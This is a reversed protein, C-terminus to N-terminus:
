EAHVPSSSVFQRPRFAMRSGKEGRKKQAVYRTRVGAIMGLVAALLYQSPFIVYMWEYMAHLSAAVVAVGLGVMIESGELNRFRIASGFAYFIASGLMALFAFIGFYGSEAAILLYSNHVNTSRSGSAWTVGARDSYGETNAIFVYHNPGVGLPNSVIMNEAAEAFAERELDEQFFTQNKVELRRELTAYAFPIMGLLLVFAGAGIALKRSSFRLTLCLLMTIAVGIASFAITARSATLAVLTVGAVVGILAMKTSRGSLLLALCPMLAFHSVFGLLNQHGLSGGTQLAGGAKEMLAYVLQVCLGTVLGMALAREGESKTAIRGIALFVILVRILQVLYSSALAGFKAQLVSIAVAFLYLLIPLVLYPRQWKGRQGFLIAIAVADLATFQWGKVYGSWM